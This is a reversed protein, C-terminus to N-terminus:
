LDRGGEDVFDAIKYLDTLGDLHLNERHVVSFDTKGDLLRKGLILLLFLGPSLLLGTFLVACGSLGVLRRRGYGRRPIVFPLARALARRRGKLIHHGAELLCALVLHAVELASALAAAVAASTIAVASSLGNKRQMFAVICSFKILSAIKHSDDVCCSFNVESVVELLSNLFLQLLELLEKGFFRNYIHNDGKFLVTLSDFHGDAVLSHYVAGLASHGFHVVRKVAYHIDHCPLDALVLGTKLLADFGAAQIVDDGINGLSLDLRFILVLYDACLLNNYLRESNLLCDELHVHDIM